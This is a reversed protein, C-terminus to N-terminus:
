AIEEWSFGPGVGRNTLRESVASVYNMMLTQPTKVLVLIGIKNQNLESFVPAVENELIDRVGHKEHNMDQTLLCLRDNTCFHALMMGVILEDPCSYGQIKKGIDPNFVSRSIADGSVCIKKGLRTERITHWLPTALSIIDSMVLNKCLDHIRKDNLCEDIGLAPKLNISDRQKLSRVIVERIFGSLNYQRKKQNENNM